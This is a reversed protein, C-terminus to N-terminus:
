DEKVIAEESIELAAYKLIADPSFHIYSPLPKATRYNIDLASLALIVMSRENALRIFASLPLRYRYLLDLGTVLLARQQSSTPLNRLIWGDIADSLERGAAKDGIPTKTIDRCIEHLDLKYIFGPPCSSFLEDIEGIWLYVHRNITAPIPQSAFRSAFELFESRKM